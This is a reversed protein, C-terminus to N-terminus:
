PLAVRCAPPPIAIPSKFRATNRWTSGPARSFPNDITLRSTMKSIRAATAEATMSVSGMIEVPRSHSKRSRSTSKPMRKEISYRSRKQTASM